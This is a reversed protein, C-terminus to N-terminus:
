KQQPLSNGFLIKLNISKSPFKNKFKIYHNLLLEYELTLIKKDNENERNFLKKYKQFKYFLNKLELFNGRNLMASNKNRHYKYIIRNLLMSSNAYKHALISFINDDHYIWKKGFIESKFSQFIKRYVKNKIMKNTIIDDYIISNVFASNYLEPQTIIKNFEAFKKSKTKNLLNHYFFCVMDLNYKKATKYLVHLSNKYHYEDDPDLTMFYEGRSNLIGIGRSYLTGRNKKNNIIKIRKDFKTLETLIELSKDKSNDNVAIIEINKISQKQISSISRKLYQEKNYIPLFISIKPNNTTYPYSFVNQKSIYLIFLVIIQLFFKIELDKITFNYLM